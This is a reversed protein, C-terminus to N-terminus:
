LFFSTQHIMHQSQHTNSIPSLVIVLHASTPILNLAILQLCVFLASFLTQNSQPLQLLFGDAFTLSQVSDTQLFNHFIGDTEQMRQNKSGTTGKSLAQTSSRHPLTFPMSYCIHSKWPKPVPRKRCVTLLCSHYSESVGASQVARFCDWMYSSAYQQVTSGPLWLPQQICSPTIFLSLYRPLFM